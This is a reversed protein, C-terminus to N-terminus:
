RRKLQETTACCYTMEVTAPPAGGRVGVVAVVPQQCRNLPYEPSPPGAVLACSLQGLLTITSLLPLTYIASEALWRMRLTDDELTIVVTAPLAEPPSSEPTPRRRAPAVPVDQGFLLAPASRPITVLPAELVIQPEPTEMPPREAIAQQAQLAKWVEDASQGVGQHMVLERALTTLVDSGDDMSQLGSDSFAAAPDPVNFLVVGNEYVSRSGETGVVALKGYVSDRTAILHFGRWSREQSFPELRRAGGGCVLLALVGAVGAAWARRFALNAAAALNLASVLSVIEFSGLWRVLGIAVLIGGASSGLAEWLYVASSAEGASAAGESGFLGSGATFMAGCLLCLPGLAVLSTVLMPGPGLVEGPVTELVSKAERVALIACPLAAATLAEIGALLRRPSRTRAAFRGALSSGSATWFLWSALMLGISMENGYFVAMLERLMVIQAIAATFGILVFM